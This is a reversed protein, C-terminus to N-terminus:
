KLNNLIEQQGIGNAYEIINAQGYCLCGIEYVARQSKLSSGNEQMEALTILLQRLEKRIVKIHEPM